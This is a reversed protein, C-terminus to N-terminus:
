VSEAATPVFDSFVWGDGDIPECLKEFTSAVVSHNKPFFQFQIKDGQAAKINNPSFTLNNQGVNVSYTKSLALLPLLSSALAIALNM